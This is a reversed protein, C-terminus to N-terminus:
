SGILHEIVASASALVLAAVTVLGVRGTRRRQASRRDANQRLLVLTDIDDGQFPREPPLRRDYAVAAEVPAEDTVDGRHGDDGRHGPSRGATNASTAGPPSLGLWPRSDAGSRTSPVFDVEM